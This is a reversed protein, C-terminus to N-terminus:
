GEGQVTIELPPNPVASGSVYDSALQHACHYTYLFCM